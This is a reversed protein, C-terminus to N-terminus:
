LSQLEQFYCANLKQKVTKTPTLEPKQHPLSFYSELKEACPVIPLKMMMMMMVYNHFVTIRM